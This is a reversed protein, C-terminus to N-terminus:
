QENKMMHRDYIWIFPAYIAFSIALNCFQLLVGRMDGNTALFGSIFVPTSWPLDIGCLRPFIGREMTLYSFITTAAPALIFPIILIPNFAIPLGFIVPEDINFIAPLVAMKGVQRVHKSKAFLKMWLVMSLTSASGGMWIFLEVFQKTVIHPYVAGGAAFVELNELTQTMWVPLMAGNVLQAGHLGMGWFISNISQIFVTGPLSTGAGFLLQRIQIIWDEYLGGSFICHHIIKIGAAIGVAVFAMFMPGISRVFAQPIRKGANGERLFSFREYLEATGLGLLMAPLLGGAGELLQVRDGHDPLALVAYVMVALIGAEVGDHGYSKSLSVAASVAGLLAIMGIMLPVFVECSWSEWRDGLILRMLEQYPEWPFRSILIFLSGALTFPVIHIMAGRMALLHRQGAVASAYPMVKEVIEETRKMGTDGSDM